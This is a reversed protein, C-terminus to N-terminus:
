WGVVPVGPGGPGEERHGRGDGGHQQRRCVAALGVAGLARPM